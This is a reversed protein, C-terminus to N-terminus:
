KELQWLILLNFHNIHHCWMCWDHLSKHLLNRLLDYFYSELQLHPILELRHKIAAM